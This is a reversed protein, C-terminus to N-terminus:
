RDKIKDLGSFNVKHYTLLGISRFMLRKVGGLCMPHAHSSVWNPDINRQSELNASSDRSVRKWM